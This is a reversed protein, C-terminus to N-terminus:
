ITKSNSYKNSMLMQVPSEAAATMHYISAVLGIRELMRGAEKHLDFRKGMVSFVRDVPASTGPVTSMAFEVM